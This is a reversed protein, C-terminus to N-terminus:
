NLMGRVIMDTAEDETLGRSMLTELEKKNVRGISAEHTLEALDNTVKIIPIASVEAKSGKVVEICDVHGKAYPANGYIETYVESYTEDAAFVRAKVTGRSEEGNLYMKEVIKIYDNKTAYIKSDMEAIAKKGLKYDYVLNIKGVRGKVLKFESKMYGGEDIFGETYPVIEVGGDEGHFHVEEYSMKANKGVKVNSIMRHIVNVAKPFSCHSIFKVEANEEVIIESQIVQEGETGVVGFCMHVPKELKYNKLVTIKAKIGNPLEEAEVELGPVKNLGLIKNKNILMFGNQTGNFINKNGGTHEVAEILANYEMSKDDM